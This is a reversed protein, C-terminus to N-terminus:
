NMLKNIELPELSKFENRNVMKELDKIDEIGICEIFIRKKEIHLNDCRIVNM